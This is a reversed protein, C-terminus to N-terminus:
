TKNTTRKRAGKPALNTQKNSIKGAEQTLGINSYVERKSNKKSCGLHRPSNHKWKCKNGHVKKNRKQNGTQGTWQKTAHQKAEM